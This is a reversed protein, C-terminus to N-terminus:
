SKEADLYYRFEFEQGDRPQGDVLTPRFRNRMIIRRIRKEIMREVETGSAEITNIRSRGFRNLSFRISLFGTATGADTTQTLALPSPQFAPLAVPVEPAFIQQLEEESVGLRKLTDHADSYMRLATNFREFMLHWDALGVMSETAVAINETDIAYRLMRNYSDRGLRFLQAQRPSERKLRSATRNRDRRIHESNAELFYSELIKREIDLIQPDTGGNAGGLLAIAKAYNGRAASLSSHAMFHNRGMGPGDDNFSGFSISVEPPMDGALFRRYTAIQREATEVLIHTSEPNGPNQTAIRMLQVDLQIVREFDGLAINNTRLERIVAIQEPSFLGHTVRQIHLAQELMAAARQHDNREYYLSALSFYQEYLDDSLPGNAAVEAEIVALRQAEIQQWQRLAEAASQADATSSVCLHLFLAILIGSALQRIDQASM